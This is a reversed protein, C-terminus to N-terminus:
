GCEDSAISANSHELAAFLAFTKSAGIAASPGVKAIPHRNLADVFSSWAADTEDGFGSFFRGGTSATVGLRQKIARNIFEGGLMSGEIVYLCGLGEANDTLILPPPPAIEALSLNYYALDARLWELRLRSRDLDVEVGAWDLAHLASGSAQHLRYLSILAARYGGLTAIRRKLDFAKETQAHHSRTAEKLYIQLSQNPM